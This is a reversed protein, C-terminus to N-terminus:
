VPEAPGFWARMGRMTSTALARKPLGLSRLEDAIPHPGLELHLGGPRMRVRDAESRWETRVLKGDLVSFTPPLRSPMPLVRGPGFTATLVHAGDISMACRMRGASETIDIDALVKPYGWIRRGAELTFAQTVPLHRIHVGVEGDHRVLLVVGVEHYPDLDSDTYRVVALNLVARGLVRVVELGEPLLEQARGAPVLLQAAWSDAQRVEIPFTLTRGQIETTSV